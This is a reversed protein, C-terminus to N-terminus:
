ECQCQCECEGCGNCEEIDTIPYDCKCFYDDKETEVM